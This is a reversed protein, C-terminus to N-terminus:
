DFNNPFWIFTIYTIRPSKSPNETFKIILNERFYDSLSKINSFNIQPPKSLSNDCNSFLFLMLVHQFLIQQINWSVGCSTILHWWIFPINWLKFYFFFKFFFSKDLSKVYLYVKTSWFETWTFKWSFGGEYLFFGLWISSIIKIFGFWM